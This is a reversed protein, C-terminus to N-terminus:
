IQKIDIKKRYRAEYDQTNVCHIGREKMAKSGGIHQSSFRGNKKILVRICLGLMALGLLLIGLLVEM